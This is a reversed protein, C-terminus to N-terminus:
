IIKNLANLYAKVSAVVIDTDAGFGYVFNKRYKLQIHVKGLDDSGGTIAQVLYEELRVKKKVIKDVANFAANIPGNGLSTATHNEDQYKLSVTAMPKLPWGCVVQLFNLELKCHNAPEGALIYLDDDNIERKKDALIIFKQYIEDIKQKTLTFGLQKLRHTLAARGSRATLIIKSSPIGIDKPNIIEYTNRKKLVGHQHIGSSHAFANRGVIAKNAQVPMRM